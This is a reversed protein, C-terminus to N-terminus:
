LLQSTGEDLFCGGDEHLIGFRLGANLLAVEDKGWVDKIAFTVLVREDESAAAAEALAALDVRGLTHEVAEAAGPNRWAVEEYHADGVPEDRTAPEEGGKVAVAVAQRGLLEQEGEGVGGGGLEAIV